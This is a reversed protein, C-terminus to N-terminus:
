IDGIYVYQSLWAPANVITSGTPLLISGWAQNVSGYGAQVAAETLNTPLILTFPQSAWANVRLYDLNTLNSLDMTAGSPLEVGRAEFKSLSSPLKPMHEFAVYYGVLFSKLNNLSSFDAIGSIKEPSTNSFSIYELSSPFVLSTLDISAQNITVKKLKTLNSYDQSIGSNVEATYPWPVTLQIEEVNTPLTLGNFGASSFSFYKLSTAASFNKDSLKYGGIDLQELSNPLAPKENLKDADLTLKKLGNNLKIKEVDRTDLTLINTASIDLTNLLNLNTLLSDINKGTLILSPQESVGELGLNSTAIADIEEAKNIIASALEVSQIKHAPFKLNALDVYSIGITELKHNQSFDLELPVPALEVEPYFQGFYYPEFTWNFTKLEPLGNLDRIGTALSNGIEVTEVKPFNKFGHLVGIENVVSKQYLNSIYLRIAEKRDDINPPFFFVTDGNPKAYYLAENFARDRYETLLALVRERAVPDKIRDITNGLQDFRYQKILQTAREEMYQQYQISNEDLELPENITVLEEKTCAQFCFLLLASVISITFIKKM